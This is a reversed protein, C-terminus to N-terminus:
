NATIVLDIYDETLTMNATTFVTFEVTEGAELTFADLAVQMSINYAVALLAIADVDRCPLYM